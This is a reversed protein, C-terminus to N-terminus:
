EMKREKIQDHERGPERPKIVFARWDFRWTMFFLVTLVILAVFSRVYVLDGLLRPSVFTAGARLQHGPQLTGVVTVGDGRQVPESSLIAYTGHEGNLQFSQTGVAVVNGSITVNQGVYKAYNANVESERPYDLHQTINVQYYAALVVFACILLVATIGRRM